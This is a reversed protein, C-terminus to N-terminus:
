PPGYPNDHLESGSPPRGRSPTGSAPPRPVRLGGAAKAPDGTLVPGASASDAAPITASASASATASPATAVSAVASASEVPTVTPAAAGGSGSGRLLAMVVAALVGAGLSALLLRWPGARGLRQPPASHTAVIQSGTGNTSQGDVKTRAERGGGPGDLSPPGAVFSPIQAPSKGQLIAKLTERRATLRKGCFRELCAAVDRAPAPQIAQELAELFAVATQFREAPDRELARQVVHYLANPIEAVLLSPNQVVQETLRRLTDIENDGSFLRKGTLVEHLVVGAAFIDTRRDISLGRAQEPAMYGLKGKVSGSRTASFRHAAKAIGFDIIRSQGDVGIVINQPSVDRHVVELSAGRMDVAEHAAHLGALTDAVIRAAVAPELRTKEELIVARQLTMLAVSEVYEMVLFLEGESEVVDAVSVVNPHRILSAVRAEDRFMDHFEPDRVLHRHVRKVVVLREFGAAGVHRAIYVTAMGGAALESLLEYNGIQVGLSRIGSM